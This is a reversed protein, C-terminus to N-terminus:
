YFLVLMVSFTLQLILYYVQFWVVNALFFNLERTSQMMGIHVLSVYRFTCYFPVLNQKNRQKTM